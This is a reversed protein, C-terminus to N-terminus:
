VGAIVEIEILADKDLRAIEVTTKAPRHTFYRAYVQNMRPLLDFDTLFINVKAVRSLDSGAAKLIVDINEIAQTTQEEIEGPVLTRTTRDVGLQGSLFLLNGLRTAQSYTSNNPAFEPIEIPTVM